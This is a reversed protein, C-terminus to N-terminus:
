PKKSRSKSHKKARESIEALESNTFKGVYGYHDRYVTMWTQKFNPNITKIQSLSTNGSAIIEDIMKFLPTKDNKVNLLNNEVKYKTYARESVGESAM